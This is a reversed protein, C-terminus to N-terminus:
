QLDKRLVTPKDQGDNSDVEEGLSEPVSLFTESMSRPVFTSDYEVGSGSSTSGQTVSTTLARPSRTPPTSPRAPAASACEIGLVGFGGGVESKPSRPSNPGSKTDTKQLTKLMRVSSITETITETGLLEQLDEAQLLSEISDDIDKEGQSEM